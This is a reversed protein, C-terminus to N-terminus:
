KKFQSEISCSVFPSLGPKFDHLVTLVLVIVVRFSSIISSSMKVRSMVQLHEVLSRFCYQARNWDHKFQRWWHFILHFIWEMLCKQFFDTKKVKVQCDCDNSFPTFVAGVVGFTSHSYSEEIFSCSEQVFGRHQQPILEAYPCCFSWKLLSLADLHVWPPAAMIDSNTKFLFM